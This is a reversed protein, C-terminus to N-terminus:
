KPEWSCIAVITVAILLYEVHRNFEASRGTLSADSFEVRLKVLYRELMSCDDKSARNLARSFVGLAVNSRMSHNTAMDKDQAVCLAHGKVRFCNFGVADLRAVSGLM